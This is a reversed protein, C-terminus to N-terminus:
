LAGRNGGHGRTRYRLSPLLGRWRAQLREKFWELAKPNIGLDTVATGEMFAWAMSLVLEAVGVRGLAAHQAGAKTLLFNRLILVPDDGSLNEGKMLKACFKECIEADVMHLMVVAATVNAQKLGAIEPRAAVAFKVSPGCVKLVELIQGVTMRRIKQKRNDGFCFSAVVTGAAICARVSSKEFGHQLVLTDALSRPVGCDIADMTRKGAPTKGHFGRWVPLWIACSSKVIGDLRTQGDILVNRDNFAIGQHTLLWNGAAMDRAFADSTSARLARNELNNEALWRAAMAPTVLTWEMVPMPNMPPAPVGSGAAQATTAPASAQRGTSIEGRKMANAILTKADIMTNM